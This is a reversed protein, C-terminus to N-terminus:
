HAKGNALETLFAADDASLPEDFILELQAGLDPVEFSLEVVCSGADDAVAILKIGGYRGHAQDNVEVYHNHGFFGEEGSGFAPKQVVLYGGPSLFEIALGRTGDTMWIPSNAQIRMM